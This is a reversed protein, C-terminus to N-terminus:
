NKKQKKKGERGTIILLQHKSHLPLNQWSINIHSSTNISKPVIIIIFYMIKCATTSNIIQSTSNMTRNPQMYLYKRSFQKLITHNKIAERAEVSKPGTRPRFFLYRNFDVKGEDYDSHRQPFVVRMDDYLYFNREHQSVIMNRVEECLPDSKCKHISRLRKKPLPCIFRLHLAYLLIGTYMAKSAGHRFKEEYNEEKSTKSYTCNDCKGCKSTLNHQNRHSTVTILSSIVDVKTDFTAKSESSTLNVKQRLFTQKTGAPMDSLDYNCLFTHIPTREPNSLVLQIRGKMPVRIRRKESRSENMSLTRQFKAVRSKSSLLKGSLNISSYYLLRKDGDVSTVAFPIKQSQPSFNDGAVNLVALFGEIKKSSLLRGSLLSEEFSGILSRRFPLRSITGCLKAHQPPFSTPHAWCEKMDIVNDSTFLDSKKQMSNWNLERSSLIGQQTRDLPQQVENSSLKDDLMIIDNNRCGGLKENISSGKGLPSLPYPPSSVKKQPICLAEIQSRVKTTEKVDNNLAQASKFHKYSWPEVHECQSHDHGSVCQNITPDNSLSNMFEQFCSSSWIMSHFSRNSGTHFKKHERSANSIDDGDKSYSQYIGSSIDLSDSKFHDALLMRNFPSLLRKRAQSEFVETADNTVNFVNSSYKNRGFDNVRPTSSRVQFGITRYIPRQMSQRANVSLRGIQEMPHNIKLKGDKCMCSVRSEKLHELSSKRESNHMCNGLGEGSM